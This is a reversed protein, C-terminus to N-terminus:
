GMPPGASSDMPVYTDRRIRCVLVILGDALLIPVALLLAAECAWGDWLFALVILGIALVGAAIAVSRGTRNM